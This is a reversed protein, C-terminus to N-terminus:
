REPRIQMLLDWEIEPIRRGSAAMVIDRVTGDLYSQAQQALGTGWGLTCLVKWWRFREADFTGGSQTYGRVFPDRGAFGGIEEADSGFRWMRLASWAADRMPDGFRRAGEWDLISRLGDGDVIINGNRIDTHLLVKRQPPEPIRDELWRLATAFVPRDSLLEVVVEAIESLETRAPDAQPDGPLQDPALAPDVSHLVAMAEGLQAAVVAGNDAGHVLRLVKRPVTEGDVRESILFPSGVYGDDSCTAVVEPVPVGHARVLERVGAEATVPLHEIEAPVITAVLPRSRGGWRADFAISARRAGASLRRVNSVTAPGGFEDSLFRALGDSIENTM